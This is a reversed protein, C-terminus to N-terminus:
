LHTLPAAIYDAALKFSLPELKDHGASKNVDLLKLAKKIQCTSLPKFSFHLATLHRGRNEMDNNIDITKPVKRSSGVAVFHKNFCNLMEGKNSITITNDM